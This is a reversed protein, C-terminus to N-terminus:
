NNQETHSSSNGKGHEANVVRDIFESAQLLGSLQNFGVTVITKLMSSTGALVNDRKSADGGFDEKKARFHIGDGKVPDYKFKACSYSPQIYAKFESHGTGDKWSHLVVHGAIDYRKMIADIEQMAKKLKPSYNM